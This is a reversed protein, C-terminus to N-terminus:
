IAGLRAEQKATTHAHACPVVCSFLLGGLPHVCFHFPFSFLVVQLIYAFGKVFLTDWVRFTFSLPFTYSFLTILWESTFVSIDVGQETFHQHLAPTCLMTLRELKFHELALQPNNAEFLGRIRYRRMLQVLVWFAQEQRMHLLLVASLFNIGQSYGVASDHVAYAHVVNFLLQQGRAGGGGGRAGPEEEKFFANKPMTRHLDRRVMADVPAEISLLAKYRDPHRQRLADAATLKQWVIGRFCDPVGGLARQKVLAPACHLPRCARPDSTGMSIARDLTELWGRMDEDSAAALVVKRRHPLLLEVVHHQGSTKGRVRVDAKRLLYWNSPRTSDPRDFLFLHARKLVAWHRRWEVFVASKSRRVLWGARVPRGVEFTSPAEHVHLRRDDMREWLSVLAQWSRLEEMMAAQQAAAPLAPASCDGSIEAAAKVGQPGARGFFSM